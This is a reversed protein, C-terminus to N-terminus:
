HCNRGTAQWVLANVLGAGGLAVADAAIGRVAMHHKKRPPQQVATRWRWRWNVAALVPVKRLITRRLVNRIITGVTANHNTRNWV